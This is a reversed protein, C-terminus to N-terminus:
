IDPSSKDYRQDPPNGRVSQFIGDIRGGDQYGALSISWWGSAACSIQGRMVVVSGVLTVTNERMNFTATDGTARQHQQVVVVEGKVEILRIQRDGGSGSAAANAM